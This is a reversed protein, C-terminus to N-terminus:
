ACKQLILTKAILGIAKRFLALLAALEFDVVAVNNLEALLKHGVADRVVGDLDM